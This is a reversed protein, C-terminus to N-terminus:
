FNLSEMIKEITMGRSKNTDRIPREAYNERFLKWSSTVQQPTPPKGMRGRFDSTKWWELFETMTADTASADAERLEKATRAIQGACSRLKPDLVCIRAIGSFLEQHRKAEHESLERKARRVRKLIKASDTEAEAVPATEVPKAAAPPDDAFWDIEPQPTVAPPDDAFWDIEPPTQVAEVEVSVVAPSASEGDRAQADISFTPDPENTRTGQIKNANVNQVESLECQSSSDNVNHVVPEDVMLESQSSSAIAPRMLTYVTSASFRKDRKLFGKAELEDLAANISARAKIACREAIAEYSPWCKAAASDHSVRSMLAVFVLVARASLDSELVENPVITFSGWTSIVSTTQKKSM